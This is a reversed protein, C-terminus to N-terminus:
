DNLNSEAAILAMGYAAQTQEAIKIMGLREERMAMWKSNNTGGGLTIVKNPKPAGFEALRQYGLAEIDSLGELMAQFFEVDSDPRPSLKPQLQPDNIPFREGAQLLPYYDFGTSHSPNLEPTMAQMQEVNFYKKLVAGGANSAGGVLWFDGYPQSYIGFDAQEIPQEALVKLVISSGLSTVADGPSQIGAAKVAATSDTTGTLIKVQEPLDWRQSLENTLHGIVNGPPSVRPLVDPNIRHDNLCQKVSDPWCRGASDYGLKLTNNWDSHNWVHTLKGNIWDIQHCISGIASSDITQSLHLVKALSSAPACAPHTDPLYAKINDVQTAASTDNYMMVASLPQHHKNLLLLSTATADLAISQLDQMRHQNKLGAMVQEVQQWWSDPTQEASASVAYEALIRHQQDILIGRCGSTGLDIGLWCAM